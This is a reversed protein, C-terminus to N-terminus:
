DIGLGDMITTIEFLNLEIENIPYRTIRSLNKPTIKKGERDLQLVAKTITAHFQNNDERDLAMFLIM